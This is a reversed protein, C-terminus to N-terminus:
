RDIGANAIWTGGKHVRIGASTLWGGPLQREELPGNLLEAFHNVTTRPRLKATGPHM